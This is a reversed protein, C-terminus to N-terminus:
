LYKKLIEFHETLALTLSDVAAQFENFDLNESQLTDIIIVKGDEIGYAGGLMETANLRLLEEYLAEKSNKPVDMLNIRFVIIPETHIILINDVGEEDNDLKWVGQELTVYPLNMEILYREIDENTKM